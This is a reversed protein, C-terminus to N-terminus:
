GVDNGGRRTETVADDRLDIAEHDATPMGGDHASRRRLREARERAKEDKSRKKHIRSTDRPPLQLETAAPIGAQLERSRELESDFEAGFMLALNTIWLWLLFVIVGALVGYTKQYSSFGSVYLGFAVSAIAWTVLAVLAGASMWRFKPQKVNPTTHYLVAIIFIVILALVPWKAIQWATVAADGLGIASGIAKALPGTVVLAIAVVGILLVAVVTLALQIPTLKWIPRGEEVEYIRNMARSFARVYGSASWIAVVIGAALSWGAAQSSSLSEIPGRLTDVASQPGLDGIIGLIADTTRQGQGVVGLLSVAALLAPFLSLVAYYTLGAALDTCHDDVFERVTSRFAFRWAPKHLDAPSDPKRPDDPAPAGRSRRLTEEDQQTTGDAPM